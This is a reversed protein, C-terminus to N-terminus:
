AIVRLKNDSHRRGTVLDSTGKDEAIANNVAPHLHSPDQLCAAAYGSIDSTPHLTFSWVILSLFNSLWCQRLCTRRFWRFCRGAKAGRESAPDVEWSWQWCLTRDPIRSSSRAIPQSIIKFWRSRLHCLAKNLTPRPTKMGSQRWLFAAQWLALLFGDRCRRVFQCSDSKITHNQNTFRSLELTERAKGMCMARCITMPLRRTDTYHVGLEQFGSRATCDQRDIKYWKMPMSLTRLTDRTM